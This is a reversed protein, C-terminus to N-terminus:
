PVRLFGLSKGTYFKEKLFEELNKNQGKFQHNTKNYKLFGSFNLIFKLEFRTDKITNLLVTLTMAASKYDVLGEQFHKIM